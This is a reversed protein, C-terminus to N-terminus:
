EDVEIQELERVYDEPLGWYRAGDLILRKYEASPPPSNAERKAFYAWVPLPQQLDGDRFVTCEQRWYANEERGPRYGESRDLAGVELDPIEFVAGWVQQGAEPVADAVGCGHTRSRRTFALRHGPLMAVCVFRASPCRCMMQDRSLNSGYAFYLMKVDLCSHNRKKLLGSSPRHRM